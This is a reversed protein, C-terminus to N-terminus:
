PIDAELVLYGYGLSKLRGYLQHICRGFDLVAVIVLGLIYASVFCALGQLECALSSIQWRTNQCVRFYVNIKRAVATLNFLLFM